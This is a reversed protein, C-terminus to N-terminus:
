EIERTDLNVNVESDIAPADGHYSVPVRRGDTLQVLVRGASMIRVVIGYM